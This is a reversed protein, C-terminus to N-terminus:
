SPKKPPSKYFVKQFPKELVDIFFFNHFNEMNKKTIGNQLGM